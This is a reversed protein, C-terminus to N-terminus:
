EVFEDWKRQVPVSYQAEIPPDWIRGGPGGCEAAVPLPVTDALLCFVQERAAASADVNPVNPRWPTPICDFGLSGSGDSLLCWTREAASVEPYAFTDATEGDSKLLRVVGGGDDLPLSTEYRFVVLVQRPKLSM